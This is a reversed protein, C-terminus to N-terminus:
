LNPPGAVITTFIWDIFKHVAVYGSPQGPQGCPLFAWAAVGLQIFGGDDTEQVMPGGSDGSCAGFGGTVPGTCLFHDHHFDGIVATCEQPNLLPIDAMQLIDPIVGEGGVYDYIGWGIITVGRQFPDITRPPLRTPQITESFQIEEAVYVKVNFFYFYFNINKLKPLVIQTFVMAIDWPFTEPLNGNAFIEHIKFGGIPRRQQGFEEVSLDWKGCLISMQGILSPFICHAATLIWNGNVISAGCIHSNSLQVSCIFPHAHPEANQGGIIRGTLPSLFKTAEIKIKQVFFIRTM